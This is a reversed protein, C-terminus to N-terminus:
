YLPLFFDVPIPQQNKDAVTEYLDIRFPTLTNNDKFPSESANQHLAILQTLSKWVTIFLIIIVTFSIQVAGMKWMCWSCVVVISTTTFFVSLENLISWKAWPNVRQKFNRRLAWTEQGVCFDAFKPLSVQRERIVLSVTISVVSPPTTPPSHTM